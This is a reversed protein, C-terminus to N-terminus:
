FSVVFISINTGNPLSARRKMEAKLQELILNRETRIISFYFPIAKGLTATEPVLIHGCYIMRRNQPDYFKLFVIVDESFFAM